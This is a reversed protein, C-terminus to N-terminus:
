RHLWAWCGSELTKLDLSKLPNLVHFCTFVGCEWNMKKYSTSLSSIVNRVSAPSSMHIALYEVFTLVHQYHPKVYPKLFFVSFAVFMKVARTHTAQTGPRHAERQRSSAVQLLHNYTPDTKCFLDCNFLSEDPYLRTLSCDRILAIAKNAHTTSLCARSPTDAAVMRAGPIHTFVLYCDIAAVHRWIGRACALIVPDKGKGSTYVAIAASNDCQVEITNGTNSRCLTSYGSPLQYSRTALHTSREQNAGHLCLYLLSRWRPGRGRGHM